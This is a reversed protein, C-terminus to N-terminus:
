PPMSTPRCATRRAARRPTAPWCCSSRAWPWGGSPPCAPAPLRAPGRHAPRAGVRGGRPPGGPGRRAVPLRGRLRWRRRRHRHQRRHRPRGGGDLEMVRELAEAPRPGNLVLDGLIVIRDPKHSSSTRSPPRSPRSTATSTPRPPRDAAREDSRTRPRSSSPSSPRAASRATSPPSPVAAASAGARAEGHHGRPDPPRGAPRGAQLPVRRHRRLPRHPGRLGGRPGRVRGDDAGAGRGPHGRAPRAAGPLPWRLVVRDRHRGERRPHLRARPGGRRRPRRAPLALSAPHAEPDGGHELLVGPRAGATQSPPARPM